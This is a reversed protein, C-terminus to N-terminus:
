RFTMMASYSSGKINELQDRLKHHMEETLVFQYYDTGDAVVYPPDCYFFSEEYDYNKILREFPLNEIYTNELRQSLDM